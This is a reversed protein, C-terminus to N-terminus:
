LSGSGDNLGVLFVEDTVQAEGGFEWNFSLYLDLGPAATLDLEQCLTNAFWAYNLAVGSADYYDMEIQAVNGSGVAEM